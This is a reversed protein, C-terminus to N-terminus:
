TLTGLDKIEISMHKNIEEILQVNTKDCASGVAFDDVQRLFLIEKGNYTGKYLCPEHTTPVLHFKERLIKDILLARSRSSEPHGQLAKKVPLVYDPPIDDRKKHIKWWERFPTDIRVYLPIKPAAAEAFANSADAGRVIFNKSACAAWFIRSGVHDLMKAFTYGFIVTNRNSPQGNCVCRAKLTGCDKVLYTWLLDLVNAGPPLPCPLGFTDQNEYQNLQKFESAQWLPWNEQLKLKRRTLRNAKRKNKPLIGQKATVKRITPTTSTSPEKSSQLPHPKINPLNYTISHLHGSITSLQDFYLMPVGEEQHLASREDPSVTISLSKHKQKMATNIISHAQKINTIATNNIALLLSNKIRKTWQRIRRGTTGPHCGSIIVRGQWDPSSELLLGQTPHNGRIDLHITEQDLFPDGSLEVNCTPITIEDDNDLKITTNITAPSASHLLDDVQSPSMNTLNTEFPKVRNHSPTLTSKGTSGFGGARDTPTLKDTIEVNIVPLQHIIIQAIRDGRSITYDENSDNALVIGIEGRYDSDITGAQVNLRHKYALGSRSKIQGYHHPPIEMSIDTHILKHSRAPVVANEASFLDLGASSKTAHTPTTAHESLSKIRLTSSSLHTPVGKQPPNDKYGAQRLVAAMPPQHKLDSSFHAEDFSLHTSIRENTGDDDVVYAVKDTGKYTMFLGSSSINDLKMARPASQKIQVRSGFIRLKSLNPKKKNIREYPTMWQLSSHPRRNKLYVAHRLAYSWFQSGLGASYLLCRMIRALDQNPKEAMGNQASSDAGTVELTYGNDKVIKQFHKSAGLEKGQDTTVKANPYINKFKSLLGNVQDIPPHKHKTLYIWIYRSARDIVLLYSRFHDVSTVLKGDNDKASWDSGRVFGYDMHFHEGIGLQTDDKDPPKPHDKLNHQKPKVKGIHTKKFKGIMCASCNHFQNPRMRPVGDVAKHMMETVKKGPHGLRHHWLEFQAEDTLSRVVAKGVSQLETQVEKSIPDLYHYWLNNEMYTDFSIHSVGDRARLRFEGLGADCDTTLDWGIFREKHTMVIDTPSIITGRVDPCYYTKILTIDGSDSQWPLYGYGTCTIATENDNVGGIPYPKIHQFNLLLNKMSTVSRNAGGDNQLKPTTDVRVRYLGNSGQIATNIKADIKQVRNKLRKNYVFRCGNDNYRKLTRLETIREEKITNLSPKWQRNHLLGFNKLANVYPETPPENDMEEGTMIQGYQQEDNSAAVKSYDFFAEQRDIVRDDEDHFVYPPVDDHTDFLLPRHKNDFHLNAITPRICKDNVNM